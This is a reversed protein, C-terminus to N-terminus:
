TVAKRYEDMAIVGPEDRQELRSEGDADIYRIRMDRRGEWTAGMRTVRRRLEAMTRIMDGTCFQAHLFSTEAAFDWDDETWVITHPMTSISRWWKRTRAPWRTLGTAAKLEAAPPMNPPNPNPVNAFDRWETMPTNRHRIQSRIKPKAGAPPMATVEL